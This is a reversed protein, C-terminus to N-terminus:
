NRTQDWHPAHIAAQGPEIVHHCLQCRRHGHVNDISWGYVSGASRMVVASALQDGRKLVVQGDEGLKALRLYKWDDIGPPGALRM